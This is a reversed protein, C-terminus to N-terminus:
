IIILFVMKCSLVVHRGGYVWHTNTPSFRNDILKCMTSKKKTCMTSWTNGYNIIYEVVYNM